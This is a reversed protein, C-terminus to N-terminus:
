LPVLGHTRTTTRHSWRRLHIRDKRRVAEVSRSVRPLHKVLPAVIQARFISPKEVITTADYSFRFRVLSKLASREVRGRTAGAMEEYLLRLLFLLLDLSDNKAVAREVSGETEVAVEEHPLRVLVLLLDLSDNKAVVRKVFGETAVAVEEHPLRVLLLLPLCLSDNEM